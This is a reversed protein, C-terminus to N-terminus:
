HVGPAGGALLDVRRGIDVAHDGLREYFRALLTMEMTISTPWAAGAIEATLASDLEDREDDAAALTDLTNTAREQWSSKVQRWMASVVDGSRRVLAQARPGIERALEQSGRRGIEAALAASLELERVAGLVALLYRLDSAVPAQRAMLQEVKQEVDAYLPMALDRYGVLVVAGGLDSNLFADTAESTARAVDGMLGALREDVEALQQRFTGRVPEGESTAPGSDSGSTAEGIGSM